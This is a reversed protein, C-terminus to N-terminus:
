FLPAVLKELILIDRYKGSHSFVIPLCGAVSFGCKREAFAVVHPMDKCVMALICHLNLCRARNLLTHALASGVGKFRFSDQVYLSMEATHQYGELVNHRTFATWGVVAGKHVCAYSDFTPHREFLFHKMENVNWRRFGHTSEEAMCAANYIETVSPADDLRLPRVEYTM